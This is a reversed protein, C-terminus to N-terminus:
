QEDGAEQAERALIADVLANIQAAVGAANYHCARMQHAGNHVAAVTLRQRYTMENAPMNGLEQANM